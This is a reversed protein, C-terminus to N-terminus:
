LGPERGLAMSGVFEGISEIADLAGQLFIKYYRLM